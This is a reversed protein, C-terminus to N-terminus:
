KVKLDIIYHDAMASFFTWRSVMKEIRNLSRLLGKRNAFFNELYSPPLAMGIPLAAITKFYNASEKKLQAPPYYWIGMKVGQIDASVEKTTCRRIADNFRLKLFFYVSEWLCFQPMIVAVFRGRPSLVSPMKELLSKLSTPSICNLGGFNSFVLDFKKDFLSPDFSELDLYRSSIRHQMSFQQVKRETVKLMETSVDTAVINFGKESFLLADEGTGCNLELIELGTLEPLIRKLYDWVQKRQLQGIQGNTFRTDYETAIPDFPASM